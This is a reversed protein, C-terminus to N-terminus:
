RTQLDNLSKMASSLQTHHIPAFDRNIPVDLKFLFQITRNIKGRKTNNGMKYHLRSYRANVHRLVLVLFSLEYRQHLTENGALVDDNIMM